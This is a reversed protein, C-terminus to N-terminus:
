LTPQPTSHPSVRLRTDCNHEVCFKTNPRYSTISPSTPLSTNSYNVSTSQTYLQRNASGTSYYFAYSSTSEDVGSDDDVVVLLNGGTYNFTSNLIVWAWGQSQFNMQGSYVLQLGSTIFSSSAATTGFNDVSTNAMYIKVDNKKTMATTYAYQFAIAKVTGPRYDFEDATYIIQRYSYQYYPYVPGYTGSSSTGIGIQHVDGVCSYTTSPPTGCCPQYIRVTFSRAGTTNKDFRITVTGSTSTVSVGTSTSPTWRALQTGGTGSGNYVYVYDTNVRDLLSNDTLTVTIPCGTTSSSIVCYYDNSGSLGGTVKGKLTYYTGCSISRNTNSTATWDTLSTDAMAVTPMMMVALLLLWRMPSKVNVKTSVAATHTPRQNSFVRTEM